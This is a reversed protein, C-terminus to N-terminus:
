QMRVPTYLPGPTAVNTRDRTKDPIPLVHLLQYAEASAPVQEGSPSALTQVLAVVQAIKQPEDKLLPGYQDTMVVGEDTDQCHGILQLGDTGISFGFSLDRYRWLTDAEQSRVRADAILGLTQGAQALLSRSVVGGDCAVDGAADTLKGDEFTARRFLIEATGSLKHDFRDTVLRDLEIDRFRGALEGQWGRSSKTADVTGQFAADEGM